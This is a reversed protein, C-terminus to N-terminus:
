GVETSCSPEGAADHMQRMSARYSGHRLDEAAMTGRKGACSAPALLCANVPM